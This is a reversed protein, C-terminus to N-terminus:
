RGSEHSVTTLQGSGGQLLTEGCHLAARERAYSSDTVELFRHVGFSGLGAAGRDDRHMDLLVAAIDETFASGLREDAVLPQMAHPGWSTLVRISERLRPDRGLSHALVNSDIAAADARDDAVWQLSEAHSGTAVISEFFSLDEGVAALEELLNYYGSQSSTDNFVWRSGRLDLFSQAASSRGVVVDSFYAPRGGNRGDDFLMACPVLRAARQERLWLYSPTCMWALDALGGSLPDWAGRAPGSSGSSVNLDVRRGLRRGLYRVVHAFLGAPIGPALYTVCRLRPSM